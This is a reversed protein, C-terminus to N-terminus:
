PKLEETRPARGATTSPHQREVRRMAAEADLMARASPKTAVTVGGGGPHSLRWHGGSTRSIRWGARKSEGLLRHVDRKM